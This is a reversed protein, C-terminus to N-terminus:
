ATAPYSPIPNSRIMFYSSLLIFYNLQKISETFHTASRMLLRSVSLVFMLLSFSYSLQLPYVMDIFAEQQRKSEEADRVRAEAAELQKRESEKRATVDTTSGLCGAFQKDEDYFPSLQYMCWSGDVWRFEGKITRQAAFNHQFELQMRERDEFCIQYMWGDLPGDSPLKCQSHFANNAFTVHGNVDWQIIGVPSLMSIAEFTHYLDRFKAENERLLKTRSAVANELRQRMKSLQLHTNIRAVLEKAEFPKVLYDDAGEALGEIRIESGARASLLIVSIAATDSDSKLRKLLEFGDMAPMMVDSVVLDPKNAKAWHYAELGNSAEYVTFYRSLVSRVFSRMDANDDAILIKSGATSMFSSEGNVGFSDLSGRSSSSDSCGGSEAMLSSSIPEINGLM